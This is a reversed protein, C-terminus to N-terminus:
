EFCPRFIKRRSKFNCVPIKRIIEPLVLDTYLLVIFFIFDSYSNHVNINWGTDQYALLDLFSSQSQNSKDFLLEFFSHASM